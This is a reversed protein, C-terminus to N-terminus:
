EAAMAALDAERRAWLHLSDPRAAPVRPLLRDYETKVVAHCECARRELAARDLVEIHGRACRILGDAQLQGAVHTVSERRVGLMSGLVDQTVVVESGRLRDLCHLLWGCVQQEIAHHRNCVATQAMQTILAQTYRLLLHRVADSREFADGIFQAAIRFGQGAILVRGQGTTTGGDLFVSTGVIGEDGVLAVEACAGSEMTYSLSVIASSPFYAHVQPAGSRYVLQGAKLDVRELRQRWRQGDADALAALLRNGRVDAAPDM